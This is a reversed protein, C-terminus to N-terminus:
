PQAAQPQGLAGAALTTTVLAQQIHRVDIWEGDGHAREISGPGYTVVSHGYHAYIRADCSVGWGTPEPWALGLARHATAFARFVPCGLDSAYAENHLKDFSMHAMEPKFAVQRFRCYQQAGAQAAEALRRTVDELSHTPVFGQGGELVLPDAAGGDALRGVAEIQPYNQAVKMLARLVFAAKTIAGDCESLAGMHGAKGFFDIRYRLGDDSPEFRVAYHRALVQEGTAPDLQRTKDGYVRTYETLMADIMEVLRMQIREPNATAKITVTVAVHDNVAAPHRGYEGLVGHNTQIHQPRFLEHHSQQRLQRGAEELSTVVFPMMELPNIGVEGCSSMACRYWVAGRNAPHPINGTPEHVVVQYGAWRPDRALSLSGNGGSEEDIVFHYARPGSPTWGFTRRVEELLKMQAVMLVLQGKADCAGRGLVQEGNPRGAVYPAVTDVHSNYVCGVGQQRRDVHVVLNTRNRYVREVSPRPCAATAAYYPMSYFCDAEIAPDIPCREVLAEGGVIAKIESELVDFTRSENQALRDLDSGISTDIEILETLLNRCYAAYEDTAARKSVFDIIQPSLEALRQMDSM